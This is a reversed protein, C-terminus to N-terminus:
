MEMAVTEVVLTEKKTMSTVKMTEMKTKMMRTKTMKPNLTRKVRMLARKAEQNQLVTRRKARRKREKKIKM